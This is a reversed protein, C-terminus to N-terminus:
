QKNTTQKFWIAARDYEDFYDLVAVLGDTFITEDFHM